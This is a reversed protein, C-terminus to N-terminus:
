LHGTAQLAGIALLVVGASAYGSVTPWLHEPRPGYGPDQSVLRRALAGRFGAAPVPRQDSLRHGLEDDQPEHEIPDEHPDTM